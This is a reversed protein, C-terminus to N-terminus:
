EVYERRRKELAKREGSRLERDIVQYVSENEVQMHHRLLYILYAGLERLKHITRSSDSKSAESSYLNVFFRLDELSKRFDEHQSCLIRLVSDLKPVHSALFPFIIQEELKMHKMLTGDCFQLVSHVQKLNRGVSSKGEFQFGTLATDLQKMKNLAM